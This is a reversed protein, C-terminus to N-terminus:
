QTLTPFLQPIDEESNGTITGCQPPSRLRKVSLSSCSGRCTRNDTRQMQRFIPLVNNGIKLPSHLRHWWTPVLSFQPSFAIPAEQIRVSIFLMSDLVIPQLSPPHSASLLTSPHGVSTSTRTTKPPLPTARPSAEASLDRRSCPL